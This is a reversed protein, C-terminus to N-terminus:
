KGTVTREDLSQPRLFGFVRAMLDAIPRGPNLEAARALDQKAAERDGLSAYCLARNAYARDMRPSQRIAQSYDEVAKAYEGLKSYTNARNYYAEAYDDDIEIAQTYSSLAGDPDGSKSLAVAQNNWAEAFLPNLAVAERYQELAEHPKSRAALAAGRSNHVHAALGQHDLLQIRRYLGLPNDQTRLKYYNGSQVYVEDFVFPRSVFVPAAPNVLITSRNSLTVLCCAHRFGNPAQGSKQFEVVGVPTAALGASCALIYFMQTYGLCNATRKRLVDALDFTTQDSSIWDQIMGVIKRALTKEAAVAQEQERAQTRNSIFESHLSLSTLVGARCSVADDFAAVTEQPYGLSM